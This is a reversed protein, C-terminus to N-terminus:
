LLDGIDEIKIIGEMNQSKDNGNYQSNVMILHEVGINKAPLIDSQFNDGIILTNKPNFNFAKFALRWGKEDKKKNIPTSYFPIRIEEGYRDTYMDQIYKVKRETWDKQAHSYIGVPINMNTIMNFIELTKNGLQPIGKYFEDASKDIYRFIEEKSRIDEGYIDVITDQILSNILTPKAIKHYKEVVRNLFIEPTNISDNQLRLIYKAVREIEDYFYQQTLFLTDDLDFIVSKIEYKNLLKSLKTEIEKKKKM